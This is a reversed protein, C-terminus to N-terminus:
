FLFYKSFAAVFKELRKKAEPHKLEAAKRYCDTIFRAEQRIVHNSTIRAKKRLREFSVDGQYLYYLQLYKKEITEFPEVNYSLDIHLAPAERESSENLLEQLDYYLLDDDIKKLEEQEEMTLSSGLFWRYIVELLHEEQKQYETLTKKFPRPVDSMYCESSDHLLCALILRSTYGRADAELACNICHQGVSFFTKVHGNGRCILSLAHAIDTIHIDEPKPDTPYFHTGSYTTIYDAM